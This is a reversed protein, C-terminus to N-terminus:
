ERKLERKLGNAQNGVGLSSASCVECAPSAGEKLKACAGVKDVFSFHLEQNLFFVCIAHKYICTMCTTHFVCFVEVM